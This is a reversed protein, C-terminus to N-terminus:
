AFWFAYEESFCFMCVHVFHFPAVSRIILEVIKMRNCDCANVNIYFKALFFFSVIYFNVELWGIKKQATSVERKRWRVIPTMLFHHNKKSFWMFASPVLKEVHQSIFIMPNLLMRHMFGANQVSAATTLIIFFLPMRSIVNCIWCM